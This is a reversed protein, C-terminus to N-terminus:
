FILELGTGSNEVKGIYKVIGFQDDSVIRKGFVVSNDSM